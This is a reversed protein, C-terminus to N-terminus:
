LTRVMEIQRVTPAAGAAALFAAIGRDRDDLNLIRLPKGAVTAAGHLLRTGTGRRRAEPRVALQPLDGTAPFVVAYGDADGLVVLRDGARRLSATTNQWSPAIDCWQGHIAGESPRAEGSGTFSWCQLRRTEEFGQSRYLEVAATNSEIVELVYQTCGRERLRPTMFDLMARGLGRRRHSPVVGTGSDYAREGDVANLTFAVLKGGDFAGISAEPLYARRTLMETLQERTPAFTVVYDSFAEVFATHILDFDDVRLSRFETM